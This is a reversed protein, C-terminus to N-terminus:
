LGSEKQSTVDGMTEHFPSFIPSVFVDHFFAQLRAPTGPSRTWSRRRVAIEFMILPAPIGSFVAMSIDPCLVRETSSRYVITTSRSTWTAPFRM